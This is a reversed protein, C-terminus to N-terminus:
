EPRERSVLLAKSTAIRFRMRKSQEPLFMLTGMAIGRLEGSQWHARMIGSIAHANSGLLLHGMEHAIVSGLIDALNVNSNAHLEQARKWFVDSYCGTGDHALFAVGFAADSTSSAIRSIIRIALHGPVLDSCVTAGGGSTTHPCNLWAVGFGARLFIRAAQQEARTLIDSPVQADNYVSVSVQTHAETRSPASEIPDFAAAQPQQNRSEVLSHASETFDNEDAVFTSNEIAFPLPMHLHPTLTGSQADAVTTVLGIAITAAALRMTRKV